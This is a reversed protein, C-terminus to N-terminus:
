CYAYWRSDVTGGQLVDDERVRLPILPMAFSGPGHVLTMGPFPANNRPNVDQVIVLPDYQTGHCLCYIPDQEYVTYTPPPLLYDRGPPPDTAVHWGPFCCLHTCRDFGAVMRLDRAPDDYFLAFGPPLSYSPRDPIEFYADVRPVRIVLAPLGTGPVYANDEFLGRWVASAGQWVEFDRARVPTGEKTNWWQDTPYRTYILDERIEGRFPVPPPLLGPPLLQPPLLLSPVFRDMLLAGTGSAAAGATFAAVEVGIEAFRRRTLRRGQEEVRESTMRM